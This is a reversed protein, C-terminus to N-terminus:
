VDRLDPAHRAATKRPTGDAAAAGRVDPRSRRSRKALPRSNLVSPGPHPWELDHLAALRGQHSLVNALYADGHIVTGPSVIGDHEDGPDLHVNTGPWFLPVGALARAAPEVPYFVLLILFIESNRKWLDSGSRLPILLLRPSGLAVRAKGEATGRMPNPSKNACRSQSIDSVAGGSIDGPVTLWSCESLL